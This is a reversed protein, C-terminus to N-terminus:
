GLHAPTVLVRSSGILGRQDELLHFLQGLAPPQLPDPGRKRSRGGWFCIFRRSATSILGPLSTFRAWFRIWGLSFVSTRNRIGSRYTTGARGCTATRSHSASTPLCM